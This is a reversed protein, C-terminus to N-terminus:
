YPWKWNQVEDRDAGHEDGYRLSECIRDKLWDKVHAGITQLRPVRDIVDITLDFRDTQNHIALQLPTNISGFKTIAECM